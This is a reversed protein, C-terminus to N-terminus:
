EGTIGKIYTAQDMLSDLEAPDVAKIKVLWGHEYPSENVLGPNDALTENIELVVGSVPANIESVAKVSEVTGLEDGQTLTTGLDPLEVFVIDGLQDQAYDSIGVTITEGNKAWEHSQAYHLDKPFTLQNIDKM